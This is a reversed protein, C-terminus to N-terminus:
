NIKMWVESALWFIALINKLLMKLMYINNLITNDNPAMQDCSGLVSPTM